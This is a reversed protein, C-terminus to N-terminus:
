LTHLPPPLIVFMIVQLQTDTSRKVQSKLSIILNKLPLIKFDTMMESGFIEDRHVTLKCFYFLFYIRACKTRLANVNRVETCMYIVKSVNRFLVHRNM